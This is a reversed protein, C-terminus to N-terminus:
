LNEQKVRANEVDFKDHYRRATEAYGLYARLLAGRTLSVMDTTLNDIDGTLYLNHVYHHGLDQVEDGLSTVNRIGVGGMVLAILSLAGCGAFLKKSITMSM